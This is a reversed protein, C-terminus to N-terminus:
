NSERKGAEGKEKCREVWDLLAQVDGEIALSMPPQHHIVEQGEVIDGVKM